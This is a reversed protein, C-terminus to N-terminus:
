KLYGCSYVNGEKERNELHLLKLNCHTQVLEQFGKMRTQLCSGEHQSRVWCFCLDPHALTIPENTLIQTPSPAPSM